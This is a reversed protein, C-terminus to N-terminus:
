RAAAHGITLGLPWSSFSLVHRSQSFFTLWRTWWRPAPQSNRARVLDRFFLAPSGGELGRGFRASGGSGLNWIVGPDTM